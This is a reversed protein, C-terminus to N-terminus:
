PCIKTKPAQLGGFKTPEGYSLFVFNSVFTFIKFSCLFSLLTHIKLLQCISSVNCFVYFYYRMLKRAHTELIKGRLNQKMNKSKKKVYCYSPFQTETSLIAYHILTLNKNYFM